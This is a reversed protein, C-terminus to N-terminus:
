KTSEKEVQKMFEGIAVLLRAKLAPGDNEIPKTFFGPAIAQTYWHKRDGFLPHRLRGRNLAAMDHGKKAIRIRIGASKPRFDTNANPVKAAWKNLGGKKPLNDLASQKVAKRTPKTEESMAKRIKARLEKTGASKLAKAVQEIDGKTPKLDFAAGAM